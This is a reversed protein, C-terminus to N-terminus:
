SLSCGEDSCRSRLPRMGAEIQARHEWMDATALYGSPGFPVRVLTGREALPEVALDECEGASVGRLDRVVTFAQEVQPLRAFARNLSVVVTALGGGDGAGASRLERDVRGQMLVQAIRLQRSPSRPDDQSPKLSSM